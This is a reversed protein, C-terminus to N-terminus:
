RGGIRTNKARYTNAGKHALKTLMGGLPGMWLPDVWSVLFLVFEKWKARDMVSQNELWAFEYGLSYITPAIRRAHEWDSAFGICEGQEVLEAIKLRESAIDAITNNGTGGHLQIDAPDEMTFNQRTWTLYKLSLPLQFEDPFYGLIAGPAGHKKMAEIGTIIREIGIQDPVRLDAPDTSHTPIIVLKVKQGPQLQFGRFCGKLARIRWGNVTQIKEEM